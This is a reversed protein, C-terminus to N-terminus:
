LRTFGVAREDMAHAEREARGEWTDDAPKERSPCPENLPCDECAPARATCVYRGHLVLRHSMQRWHEPAFVRCLDAEIKEPSEERTLGLRQSVRAAHTDVVIGSAIQYAAGLVVNATKRAVGPVTVLEDLTRPVEGGFRELLMASAGIIARTKNRCFGTSKIVEEVEAPDAGALAAPSPWRQFVEPTVQNVRRDTSQASLIVAVLLQWPTAFALEVHPRPIALTLRELVSEPAAARQQVARTKGRAARGPPTAGPRSRGSATRPTASADRVAPPTARLKKGARKKKKTLRQGTGAAIVRSPAPNQTVRKSTRKSIIKM